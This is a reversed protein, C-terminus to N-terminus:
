KGICFESFVVGLVAEADIRGAIRGLADGAHRLEEAFLEAEGTLQAARDLSERCEALAVRQRHRTILPAEGAGLFDQTFEALRAVLVEIGAGTKPSCVIDFGGCKRSLERDSDILDVKTGVKWIPPRAELATPMGAAACSMDAVWLILDASRAREEARRVGEREALGTAERLGATDILNVAFGGLDLGVEILDRTTGAEPTVIAVDRRAVANLLSSKGANPAGLLVVTVGDRIREGRHSDDLHRGMEKALKAAEALAEAWVREPVEDEAFDIVAEVLARAWLLRARWGEVVGALAGGAQRVAQRRQAETDARLLDALGEVETLDMRGNIFARRTFEGPEAPRCGAMRGLADLVKAVVARGGHVQYEAVDEGTVSNPGPFFLVLGRDVVHGLEDRLTALKAKRPEPISGTLTELGVRAQPGTVRIVAVGAPVRGSSLAFITDTM